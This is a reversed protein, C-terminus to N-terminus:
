ARLYLGRGCGSSDGSLVSHPSAVAALVVGLFCVALGVGFSSCSSLWRRPPGAAASGGAAPPSAPGPSRWGTVGSSVPPAREMSSCAAAVLMMTKSSSGSGPSPGSVPLSCDWLLASSVSLSIDVSVQEMSAERDRLWLRAARNPTRPLRFRSSSSALHLLRGHPSVGRFRPPGAGGQSHSLRSLSPSVYQPYTTVSAIIDCSSVKRVQQYKKSLAHVFSDSEHDRSQVNLGVTNRVTHSTTHCDTECGLNSLPGCVNLIM